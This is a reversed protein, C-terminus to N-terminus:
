RLGALAQLLKREAEPLAPEAAPAPRKAPAVPTAARPTPKAEAPAAAKPRTAAIAQELRDATADAREMLFDLDGVLAGAKGVAEQLARGQGATLEALRAMTRDADAAAGAFRRVAEDLESRSRRLEGIRRNLKVAYFLTAGLLIALAGNILLTELM